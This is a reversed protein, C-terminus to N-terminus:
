TLVRLCSISRFARQPSGLEARSVSQTQEQMSMQPGMAQISPAVANKPSLAAFDAAWSALPSAAHAAPPQAPSLVRTFSQSAPLSAHLAALDYVSPGAFSPSM